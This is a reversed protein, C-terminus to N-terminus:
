ITPNWPVPILRFGNGSKEVHAIAPFPFHYGQVVMKEAAAMDYIKRRTQVALPKDTDFLFQWDPNRLFLTAVGATIDAQILVKSNGSAVV